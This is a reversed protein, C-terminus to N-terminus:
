GIWESIPDFSFPINVGELFLGVLVAKIVLSKDTWDLYVLLHILQWSSTVARVANVRLGFKSGKHPLIFVFDDM